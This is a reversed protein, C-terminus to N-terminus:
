KRGKDKLITDLAFNHFSYRKHLYAMKMVCSVNMEKDCRERCATQTGNEGREREKEREREIYIYIYIDTVNEWIFTQNFFSLCKLTSWNMDIYSDKSILISHNRFPAM